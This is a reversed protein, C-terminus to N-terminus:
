FESTFSQNNRLQLQKIFYSPYIGTKKFFSTSFVETSNFGAEKALAKITYKQLKPEIKLQEIIYEIRLDNIYPLFRKKRYYKIVTTLYKSNTNLKTALIGSTISPKLFDKNKEFNDLGHLIKQVVDEAIGISNSKNSHINKEVVLKEKMLEEFRIRYQKKKKYNFILLTTIILTTTALLLLGYYSQKKKNSLEVIIKEKESLLIPTDYDKILKNNLKRFRQNLISDNSLLRNIYHLQNKQDGQSKYHDIIGIYASRIEPVLYNTKKTLSDIKKYYSISIENESLAAHSKGLFLYTDIVNYSQDYFENEPSLFGQLTISLTIIADDYEKRYYQIIGENLKFLYHNPKGKSMKIGKANLQYASDIEKNDRYTATLEALTTLYGISDKGSNRLKNKEYILCEKFLSKAEKYKGLNRKLIAINHKIIMEYDKDNKNQASSLGKIYSDLAKNFFGRNEYFVGKNVYLSTPFYKNNTHKSYVIASDIYKIFQSPNGEHTRAILRYAKATNNADNGKKIKILIARAFPEAKQPHSKIFTDYKKLLFQYDLNVLSDISAFHENQGYLIHPSLIAFLFTVVYTIKYIKYQKSFTLLQM